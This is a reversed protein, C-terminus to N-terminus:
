PNAVVEVWSTTSEDWSYYKDDTPMTLPAEWQTTNENLVWSPYPKPPTFKNTEKNYSCGGFATINTVELGTRVWYDHGGSKEVLFNIAVADSFNGNEDLPEFFISAVDSVINNSDIKAYSYFNNKM